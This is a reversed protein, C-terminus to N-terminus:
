SYIHKIESELRCSLLHGVSCSLAKANASYGRLIPRPKFVGRGNFM